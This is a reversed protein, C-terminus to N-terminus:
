FGCIKKFIPKRSARVRVAYSRCQSRRCTCRFFSASLVALPSILARLERLLTLITEVQDGIGPHRMEHLSRLPHYLCPRGRSWRHPPAVGRGATLPPSGAVPPSEAVPPSGIVLPLGAVLPYASCTPSGLSGHKPVLWMNGQIRAESVGAHTSGVATAHGTRVALLADSVGM